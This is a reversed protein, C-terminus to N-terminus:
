IKLHEPCTHHSLISDIVDEIESPGFSLDDPYELGFDTHNMVYNTAELPHDHGSQELNHLVVSEAAAAKIETAIGQIETTVFM